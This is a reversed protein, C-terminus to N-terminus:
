RPKVSAASAGTRRGAMEVLAPVCQEPRPNVAYQSADGKHRSLKTAEILGGLRLRQVAATVARLSCGSRRAIDRNSTEATGHRCDRFIITWVVIEIASLHRATVDIFANFTAFRDGATTATARARKPQGTQRCEVAPNAVIRGSPLEYDDGGPQYLRAIDGDIKVRATTGDPLYYMGARGTAQLVRGDDLTLTASTM